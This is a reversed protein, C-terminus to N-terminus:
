LAPSKWDASILQAWLMQDCFFSGKEKKAAESRLEETRARRLWAAQAAMREKERKQLEPDKEKPRPEAPGEDPDRQRAKREETQPPKKSGEKSDSDDAWPQASSSPFRKASQPPRETGPGPRACSAAPRPGEWFRSGDSFSAPRQPYAVGGRDVTGARLGQPWFGEMSGSDTRVEVSGSRGAAVKRAWEPVARRRGQHKQYWVADYRSRLRIQLCSSLVAAPLLAFVQALGIGSSHLEVHSDTM